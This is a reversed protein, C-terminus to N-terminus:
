KAATLKHMRQAVRDWRAMEFLDGRDMADECRAFAISRARRAGHKSILDRAANDIEALPILRARIEPAWVKWTLVGLIAVVLVLLPHYWQLAM